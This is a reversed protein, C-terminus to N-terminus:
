KIKPKLRPKQAVFCVVIIRRVVFAVRLELEWRDISAIVIKRSSIQDAALVRRIKDASYPQTFMHMSVGNTPPWFVCVIYRDVSSFCYILCMGLVRGVVRGLAISKTNQTIVRRCQTVHARARPNEEGQEM